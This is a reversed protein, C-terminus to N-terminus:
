CRAELFLVSHFIALTNFLGSLEAHFVSMANFLGALNAHLTWHCFM